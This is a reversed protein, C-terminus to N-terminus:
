SAAKAQVEYAKGNIRILDHAWDWAISPKLKKGQFMAPSEGSCKARVEGVTIESRNGFDYLAFKAIALGQGVKAKTNPGRTIVDTGQVSKLDAYLKSRDRKVKPKDAKPETTVPTQEVASRMDQLAESAKAPAPKAPTSRKPAQAM